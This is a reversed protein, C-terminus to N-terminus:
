TQGNEKEKKPEYQIGVFEKFRESFKQSTFERAWTYGCSCEFWSVVKAEQAEARKLTIFKGCAICDDTEPLLSLLIEKMNVKVMEEPQSSFVPNEVM